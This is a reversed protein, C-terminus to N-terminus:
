ISGDRFCDNELLRERLGELARYWLARAAGPTSGLADAIPRWDGPHVNRLSLVTQWAEPLKGLADRVVAARELRELAAVPDEIRIDRIEYPTLLETFASLPTMKSHRRTLRAALRSVVVWFWSSRQPASLQRLLLRNRLAVNLVEQVVDSRDPCTSRTRASWSGIRRKLEDRLSPNAITWASDGFLTPVERDLSFSEM